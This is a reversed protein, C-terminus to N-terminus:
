GPAEYVQDANSSQTQAPMDGQMEWVEYKLMNETPLEAISEIPPRERQPQEWPNDLHLLGLNV